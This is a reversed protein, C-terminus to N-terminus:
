FEVDFAGDLVPLDTAGLLGTATGVFTGAIRSDTFTSINVSGTDINYTEGAASYGGAVGAGPTLARNILPFVGTSNIDLFTLSLSRGDESRTSVTFGNSTLITITSASYANGGVTATLSGSPDTQDNGGNDSDCGNLLLLFVLFSLCTKFPKATVYQM